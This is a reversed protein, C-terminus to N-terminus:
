NGQDNQEAMWEDLSHRMEDLVSAYAPDDVLNRLEKPDSALDYLEEPVRHQYRHVVAAAHDDTKAKEVWSPWYPSDAVVNTVHSTFVHDSELNRIYKFRDGRVTRSAFDNHKGDGSHTAFILDRHTEAKGALVPLFSRGDLDDPTEGGAVDVLTPLVDVWSVKAPTRVNKEIHGPWVAVMPTRIGEDYLNWKAFPWQAGHDSTHLFLTNDGLKAYAADFVQGLERDMRHIAQYYKARAKRTAPTRVHHYPIEIDKARIDKAQPWPVHPWNTGVFLCLPKDSDRAELWKLAEEVCQDEHYNFFKAIDFGYQTTQRYHGVKGFAVVEYGLDHLYAPLKKIAPKPRAHNFEAGNRAPMLGTLLAARSPACSPSAVFARDFTIGQEAVRRMNPTDLDIAGYLSSDALTHDDSLFVVINPPSTACATLSLLCCVVCATLRLILHM